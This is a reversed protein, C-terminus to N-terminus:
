APGAAESYAKEYRGVTAKISFEKEVMARGALGMKEATGPESLLYIMKEALREPDAPPVLFGNEGDRVVEAVGGTRTAIVPKGAAFAELISLPLGEAPVGEKDSLSPLVALDCIALWRPVDSRCGLFRVNDEIGLERSQAKLNGEEEGAGLLIIAVTPFAEKVRAAAKLLYAHGKRRMLKAVCGIVPGSFGLEKRKEALGGAPPPFAGTDVGNHIVMDAKKQPILFGSGPVSEAISGSVAIRLNLRHSLLGSVFKTKASYTLIDNHMTEIIPVPSGLVALIGAITAYGGNSHILEIGEDKIKKRLRSVARFDLKAGTDYPAAIFECGLASIERRLIDAIDGGYDLCYLLPSFKEKDLNRVLEIVFTETGGTGGSAAGTLIMVKVPKNM